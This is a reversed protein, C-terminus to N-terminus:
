RKVLNVFFKKRLAEFTRHCLRELLMLVLLDNIDRLNRVNPYVFHQQKRFPNIHRLPKKPQFFLDKSCGSVENNRITESNEHKMFVYTKTMMLNCISAFVCAKIAM